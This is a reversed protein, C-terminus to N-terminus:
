VFAGAVVDDQIEQESLQLMNSLVFQTDEGLAPAAKHLRGPTESFRTALGDYPTWGMVSHQLWVFFDRARLQPDRYLDSPWQVASAPVSANRLREALVFPDQSKTWGTLEADIAECREMRADLM